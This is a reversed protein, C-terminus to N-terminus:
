VGAAPFCHGSTRSKVRAEGGGGSRGEQHALPSPSPLCWSPVGAERAYHPEGGGGGRPGSLGAPAAPCPRLGARAVQELAGADGGRTGGGRRARAGRDRGGAHRSCPRRGGPGRACRLQCRVSPCPALSHRASRAARAARSGSRAGSPSAAKKGAPPGVVAPRLHQEEARPRRPPPAPPPRGPSGAAPERRGPAGGPDATPREGATSRGPSPVQGGGGTARKRRAQLHAAGPRKGPTQPPPSLLARSIHPSPRARKSSEAEKRGQLVTSKTQKWPHLQGGRSAPRSLTHPKAPKQPISKASRHKPPESPSQPASKSHWAQPGPASPSSEALAPSQPLKALPIQLGRVECSKWLALYPRRPRGAGRGRGGSGLTYM